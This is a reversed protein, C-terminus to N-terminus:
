AVCLLIPFAVVDSADLCRKYRFTDVGTILQLQFLQTNKQVTDYSLEIVNTSNQGVGLVFKSM